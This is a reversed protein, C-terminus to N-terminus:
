WEAAATDDVERTLGAGALLRMAEAFSLGEKRALDEAARFQALTRGLRERDVEVWRGRLLVLTETGALLGKVEAESLAEGDLMVTMSFDLLGDLGLKSPARTGVTAMVQPRAPRGAQWGAPMRLVVGARELETASALLRAAEQPSWRLPHFIEGSEIMPQLWACSEAARQVPLLLSLLKHRNEAGGYERLAQGLPLHQVKGQASLQSAYTAMFAFPAEPDRRNEALNFHVRGVVTWAPNLRRLLEQLGAGSAALAAALSTARAAGLDRLGEATLYEAGPMMPATLVLSALEAENPASGEPPVVAAAPGSEASAAHVCLAAVYRSAFDRWWVFVPPLAQGVEGAGLRLLGDGSGHAFAEGLRTALAEDLALADASPACLLHGRPTLRLRLAVMDAGRDGHPAGM